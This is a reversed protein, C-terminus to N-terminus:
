KHTHKHPRLRIIQVNVMKQNIRLPYDKRVKETEHECKSWDEKTSIFNM